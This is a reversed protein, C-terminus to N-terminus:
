LGDACGRAIMRVDLPVQTEVLVGRIAAMLSVFEASGRGIVLRQEHRIFGGLKEDAQKVREHVVYNGYPTMM